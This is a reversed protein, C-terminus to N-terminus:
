EGPGPGEIESYEADEAAEATPVSADMQALAERIRNATAAVSREAEAIQEAGDDSVMRGGAKLVNELARLDFKRRYGVLSGRDFVPELWGELALHLYTAEAVDLLGEKIADRAAAFAPHTQMAEYVTPRSREVEACAASFNLSRSYAALWAGHWPQAWGGKPPKIKVPTRDSFVPAGRVPAPVGVDGVLAPLVRKKKRGM